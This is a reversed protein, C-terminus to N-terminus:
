TWLGFEIVKKSSNPMADRKLKTQAKTVEVMAEVSKAKM